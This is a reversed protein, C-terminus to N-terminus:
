DECIKKARSIPLLTIAFLFQSLVRLKLVHLFVPSYLNDLHMATNIWIAIKLAIWTPAYGHPGRSLKM